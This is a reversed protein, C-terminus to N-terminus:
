VQAMRADPGTRQQPSPAGRVGRVTAPRSAVVGPEVATDSAVPFAKPHATTM